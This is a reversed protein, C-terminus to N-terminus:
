LLFLYRPRSEGLVESGQEVTWSKQLGKDRNGTIAKQPLQARFILYMIEALTRKAKNYTNLNLLVKLVEGPRFRQRTQYCYCDKSRRDNAPRLNVRRMVDCNSEGNGGSLEASSTCRTSAGLLKSALTM